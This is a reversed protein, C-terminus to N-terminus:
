IRILEAEDSELDLICFSRQQWRMGGLAGPNIVRTPGLRRDSRRHTHGHCVYAHEGASILRRLRSEQHGHIMAVPHGDFMLHHIEALRGPGMTERITQELEPHRDMNGRAFWVDFEALLEAIAPGCLDGCHLVRTIGEAKLIGLTTELSSRDDHTDSIISIRM